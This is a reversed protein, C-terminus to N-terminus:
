ELSRILGHKAAQRARTKAGCDNLISAGGHLDDFYMEVWDINDKGVLWAIFEKRMADYKKSKQGGENNGDPAIFFSQYNQAAEVIDSLLDGNFIKGAIEYAEKLSAHKNSTVVICHHRIFGM